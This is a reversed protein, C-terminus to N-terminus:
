KGRQASLVSVTRGTRPLTSKLFRTRCDLLMISNIGLLLITKSNWSAAAPYTGNPFHTGPLACPALMDKKTNPAGCVVPITQDGIDVSCLKLKDANPHPNVEVVRGVVVTDLYNYRDSAAEVELGAMTLAEALAEADMKIPIYDKLWSLSVKM